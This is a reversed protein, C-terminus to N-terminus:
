GGVGDRRRKAEQPSRACPDFGVVLRTKLINKESEFAKNDIDFVRAM